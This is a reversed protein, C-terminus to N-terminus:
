PLSEAQSFLKRAEDENGLHHYTIGLNIYNEADKPNIQLAKKFYPLSDRYKGSMAFAVGLDRNALESDPKIELARKLYVIASDLKQLQKGYTIGILYNALYDDPRYNLIIRYGKIKNLPDTCSELIKGLNEFALEYQPALHFIKEYQDISEKCCDDKMHYANGLLLLADIYEPYIRLAKDLYKISNDLYEKRFLDEDTRVAKEYLVGGAMCNGKASGSSIKVDHLFLTENNNWVRNRLITKVSGGALVIILFSIIITRVKQNKRQKELIRLFSVAAMCAFAMSPQFLFRENMFTGVNVFLNSVPILTLFYFIMFFSLMSNRRFFYVIGALMTAYFIMSIWVVPQNWTVLPVHYPYYDFTLPHPIFLLKLYWALTYLITPLKQKGAQLFPNNMLEGGEALNLGGAYRLRMWLYLITPACLLVILLMGKRFNKKGSLILLFILIPILMITNEKSLLGLFFLIIAVPILVKRGNQMYRLCEHLSTLLFLAALLEDRGKINAVVETHVPHVAFIVVSLFAISTGPSNTSLVSFIRLLTHYLIVCLLAYLLANVLHSFFPKNLGAAVEIAFTILSLPRYRGGQLLDKKQKFFGTFSDSTLIDDIGKLGQQVYINETIVLADDLAYDNWLTNVYLLFPLFFLILNIRTGSNLYKEPM